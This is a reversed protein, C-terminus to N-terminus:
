GPYKVKPMTTPQLLHHVQGKSQATCFVNVNRDVFQSNKSSIPSFNSISSLHIRTPIMKGVKVISNIRDTDELRAYVADAEKDPLNNM